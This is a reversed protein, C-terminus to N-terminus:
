VDPGDGRAWCDIPGQDTGEEGVVHCRPDAERMCKVPPHTTTCKEEAHPCRMLFLCGSPPNGPSLLDGEFSVGSVAPVFEEYTSFQPHPEDDTRVPQSM